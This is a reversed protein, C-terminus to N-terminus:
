FAQPFSEALAQKIRAAFRAAAKGNPHADTATVWLSRPEEGAVTPLLDVFPLGEAEAEAAVLDSAVQFPYPSLEHLEPYNVVMLRIGESRCFAALQRLAAKATQWGSQDEHYLNQYYRRWDGRGFYTRMFVDLRGALFVASYFHEVFVNEKRAPTPEADNIFYNLVVIDPKFRYGENLFYASQMATNTNGIGTNLVEYLRGGGQNLMDELLNATVGEPPAGWGFTVSDGLMMIRVADEPKNLPYDKDRWGHANIAVPVGMYVGSRGPVHEHGMGPIDSVRKLDGAYRWMEIDFNEGDSETLRVYVEAAAAFLLLSLVALLLGSFLNKVPKRHVIALPPRPM